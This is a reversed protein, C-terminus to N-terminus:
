RGYPRATNQQRPTVAPVATIKASGPWRTPKSVIRIDLDHHDTIGAGREAGSAGPQAARSTTIASAAHKGRIAQRSAALHQERAHRGARPPPQSASCDGALHPGGAPGDSSCIAAHVLRRRDRRIDATSRSGPRHLVPGGALQFAGAEGSAFGMLAPAAYIGIFYAYLFVHGFGSNFTTVLFRAAAGGSLHATAAAALNPFVLVNVVAGCFAGIGGILAAVTAGFRPKQGARRDGCVLRGSGRARSTCALRRRLTSDPAEGCNGAGQVRHGHDTGGPRHRQASHRPM